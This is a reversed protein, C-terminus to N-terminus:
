QMPYQLDSASCIRSISSPPMDSILFEGGRTLDLPDGLTDRREDDEAFTDVGRAAASGAGAGAGAASLSPSQREGGFVARSGKPSAADSSPLAAGGRVRGGTADVRPADTAVAALGRPGSMALSRRVVDLMFSTQAMTSLVAKIFDVAMRDGWSAGSPYWAQHWGSHGGRKTTGVIINRNARASRRLLPFFDPHAVPDDEAILIFTPIAIKEMNDAATQSYHPATGNGFPSYYGVFEEETLPAEEGIHLPVPPDAAAGAAAPGAGSPSPLVVDSTSRRYGVPRGDLTNDSDSGSDNVEDDGGGTGASRGSQFSGRRRGLGASGADGGGGGGGEGERSRGAAADLAEMRRQRRRAQLLASPIARDDGSYSPLRALLTDYVYHSELKDLQATVDAVDEPKITNDNAVHRKYCHRSAFELVPKYAGGNGVASYKMMQVLDMAPSLCVATVLPTSRGRSQLHTMLVHAGASYGIAAMPARPYKVRLAELAVDLDGHDGFDFRWRFLVIPRWGRRACLSVVNRCYNDEASGMIGHLVIVIPSAPGVGDAEEAIDLVAFNGKDKAPLLERRYAPFPTIFEDLANLANCIVTQAHANFAWFCPYFARVRFREMISMNWTSRVFTLVPREVVRLRYYLFWQVLFWFLFFRGRSKVLSRFGLVNSLLPRAALSLGASILFLNRVHKSRVTSNYVSRAYDIPSFLFLVNDSHRRFAEDIRHRFLFLVGAAAGVGALARRGTVLRAPTAAATAM